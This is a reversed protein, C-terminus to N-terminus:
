CSAAALLANKVASHMRPPVCKPSFILGFDSPWASPHPYTARGAQGSTVHKPSSMPTKTTTDNAGVHDKIHFISQCVGQLLNGYAATDTRGNAQGKRRRQLSPKRSDERLPRFVGIPSPM